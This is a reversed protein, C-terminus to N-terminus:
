TDVVRIESLSPSYKHMVIHLLGRFITPKYRWFTWSSHCFPAYDNPLMVYM